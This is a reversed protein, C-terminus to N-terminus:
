KSPQDGKLLIINEPPICISEPIMRRDLEQSLACPQKWWLGNELTVYWEFPLKSVMFNGCPITNIGIDKTVFDHARIGIHTIEDGVTEDVALVLDKWDLAVVRHDSIRKIRSINKCGTLRAAATTGPKLFLESTRGDAIVQGKEMLILYDCMQYVEDRDHSVLVGTKDYEKLIRMLELRMGERLFADLASFPEDFLCLRPDCILMRALATRQQEGGSIEAPKHNKLGTLRFLELLKQAQRIKENPDFHDKNTKKRKGHLPVIINEWVTMNPFLAYNQFLYGVERRGAKINIKQKTDLLVEEGCVIRGEDPRILGAISKLTLTKGSGSAGLIGIMKGECCFSPQLCFDKYQKRISVELRM